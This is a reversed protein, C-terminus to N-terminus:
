IKYVHLIVVALPHCGLQMSNNNNNNNLSSPPCFTSLLGCICYKEMFCHFIRILGKFLHQLSFHVYM